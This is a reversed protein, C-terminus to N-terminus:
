RLSLLSFEEKEVSDSNKVFRKSLIRANKWAGLANLMIPNEAFLLPVPELLEKIIDKYLLSGGGYLILGSIDPLQIGAATAKSIFEEILQRGEQEIYQRCIQNFEPIEKGYCLLNGDGIIVSDVKHRPISVKYETKIYDLIRNAPDITGRDIGFFTRPELNDLVTVDSTLSGIDLGLIMKEGFRSAVQQIIEGEEDYMLANLACLGEPQIDVELIDFEVEVGNFIPNLFKVKHTGLLSNRLININDQQNAFYEETPLMTGLIIEEKIQKCNPKLLSVAIATLLVIRTQLDKAKGKHRDAVTREKIIGRNFNYAMKGVFYRGLNQGSSLIEVELLNLPNRTDDNVVRRAHWPASINLICFERKTPGIIKFADNGLDAGVTLYNKM